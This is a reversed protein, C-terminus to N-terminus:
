NQMNRIQEQQLRILEQQQRILELEQARRYAETANFGKGKPAVSGSLGQLINPNVRLANPNVRSQSSGTDYSCAQTCFSYSYRQRCDSFCQYDVASIATTITVLYTSFGLLMSVIAKM